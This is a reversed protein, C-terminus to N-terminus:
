GYYFNTRNNFLCLIAFLLYNFFLLKQLIENFMFPSLAIVDYRGSKDNFQRIYVNNDTMILQVDEERDDNDVITILTHDFENEISFM